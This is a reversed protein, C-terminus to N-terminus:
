WNIGDKSYAASDDGDGLAGSIAVFVGDAFTVGNWCGNFESSVPLEVGTWNKGDKSYAASSENTIGDLNVTV